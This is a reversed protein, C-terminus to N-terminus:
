KVRVMQHTHVADGVELRLMYLGAPLSQADFHLENVGADQREDVLMQVRRGLVDFVDIRVHSPVPLEYRITTSGSFPNPFNGFLTLEAPLTDNPAGVSASGYEYAGLDIASGAIREAGRIDAAAGNWDDRGADVAPSTASLRLGDDDTGYIGDAGAPNSASRFGPDDELIAECDYSSLCGSEIASHSIEVSGDGRTGFTSVRDQDDTNGWVISNRLRVRAEGEVIGGVQMLGYTHIAGGEPASNGYFTANIFMPEATGGTGGANSNHVAGGGALATNNVFVVNTFEPEASGALGAWIDVAGGRGASNDAFVANQIEPSSIGAEANVYIAGGDENASNGVFSVDYLRASASGNESGDLYIAGGSGDAHNDRFVVNRITISCGGSFTGYIARGDCYLGGGNEADGDGDATGGSITVGDIITRAGVGRAYLVHDALGTLVTENSSPDRESRAEETGSFGGYIKRGDDLEFPVEGNLYTGAALWVEPGDDALADHLNTYADDWSTGDDTGTAGADVYIPDPLEFSVELNVEGQDDEDYGSIRIFYTEGASVDLIGGSDSDTCGLSNLPHDTGTWVSLVLDFDSGGTDIALRGEEEVTYVWWVSGERPSESGCGPVEEDPELTAGVTSGTDEFPLSTIETADALDDNALPPDLDATLIITGEGSESYGSVRIYYTEGASVSRSLQEPRDDTCTLEELPHESGAWISLVRDFDSGDTDIHLVGDQDAEYVWWVGNLAGSSSSCESSAEDPEGTAGVNTAEDEFPFATIAVADALDDNSPQANAAGAAYLLLVITLLLPSPLSLLPRVQM